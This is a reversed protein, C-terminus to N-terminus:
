ITMSALAKDKPTKGQSIHANRLVQRANDLANNALVLASESDRVTIRQQDKAEATASSDKELARM